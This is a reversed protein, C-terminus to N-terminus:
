NTRFNFLDLSIFAVSSFFLTQQVKPQVKLKYSSLVESCLNASIIILSNSVQFTVPEVESFIACNDKWNVQYYALKSMYSESMVHELVEGDDWFIEGLAIM